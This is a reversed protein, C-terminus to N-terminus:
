AELVKLFATLMGLVRRLPERAKGADSESLLGLRVALELQTSLEAASGRAYRLFSRMEGRSFRGHGEALNSAVSVAARRLQAKLGYEESRPLAETIQYVIEALGIAEHWVKLDQVKM